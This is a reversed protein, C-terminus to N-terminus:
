EYAPSAQRALDLRARGVQEQEGLGRDTTARTGDVPEEHWSGGALRPPSGEAGGSDPAAQEESVTDFPGPETSLRRITVEDHIHYCSVCWQLGVPWPGGYVGECMTGHDVDDTQVSLSGEDVNLTLTVSKRALRRALVVVVM